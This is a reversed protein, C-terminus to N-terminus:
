WCLKWHVTMELRDDNIWVSYKGAEFVVLFDAFLVIISSSFLQWSELGIIKHSHLYLVLPDWEFNYSWCFSRVWVYNFTWIAWLKTVIVLMRHLLVDYSCHTSAWIWPVIIFCNLMLWNFWNIIIWYIVGHYVVLLVWPSHLVIFMVSTTHM